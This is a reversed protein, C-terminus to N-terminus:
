EDPVPLSLALFPGCCGQKASAYHSRGMYIAFNRDKLSIQMFVIWFEVIFLACDYGRGQQGGRLEAEAAGDVNKM